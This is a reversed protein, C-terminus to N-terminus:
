QARHALTAMRQLSSRGPGRCGTLQACVDVGNQRIKFLAVDAQRCPLYSSLSAQPVQDIYFASSLLLVPTAITTRDIAWALTQLM